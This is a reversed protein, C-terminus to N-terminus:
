SMNYKNTAVCSYRVLLLILVRNIVCTVVVVKMKIHFIVVGEMEHNKCDYYNLTVVNHRFFSVFSYCKLSIELM